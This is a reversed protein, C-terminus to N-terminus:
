RGRDAQSADETRELKAIAFSGTIHSGDHMGVTYVPAGDIRLTRDTLTGCTGAFTGSRIVVRDGIMPSDGDEALVLQKLVYDHTHQYPLGSDLQHLGFGILSKLQAIQDGNLYLVVEHYRGSM